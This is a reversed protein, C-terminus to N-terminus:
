DLNCELGGRRTLTACECSAGEDSRGGAVCECGWVEVGLVETGSM